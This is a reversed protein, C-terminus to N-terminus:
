ARGPFVGEALMENAATQSLRERPNQRERSGNPPISGAASPVARAAAQRLHEQRKQEATQAATTVQATAQQQNLLPMIRQQAYYYRNAESPIELQQAEQLFESFKAGVASPRNYDPQKTIPNVEFLVQEHSALLNNIYAQEGGLDLKEVLQKPEMGFQETLIKQVRQQVVHDIIPELTAQPNNVLGDAWQRKLADAQEFDRIVQPPTNFKWDRKEADFWRAAEKTDIAPFQPWPSTDGAPKQTQQTEAPATERRRMEEVYQQGYQVLPRFQEREAALQERQQREQRLAEVVRAQAEAEDKLDTFGFDTKLTDLWTPAPAAPTEVTETTTVTEPTSVEPAATETVAATTDSTEGSPTAFVDAISPESTPTSRRAM